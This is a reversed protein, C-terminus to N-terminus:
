NVQDIMEIHRLSIGQNKAAAEIDKRSGNLVPILVHEDLLRRAARLIRPDWGETFMIRISHGELMKKLREM